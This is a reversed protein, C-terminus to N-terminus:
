RKIVLVIAMLREMSTALATIVRMFTVACVRRTRSNCGALGQTIAAAM